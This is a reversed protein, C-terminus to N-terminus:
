PRFYLKPVVLTFVALILGEGDLATELALAAILPFALFHIQVGLIQESGFFLGSFM